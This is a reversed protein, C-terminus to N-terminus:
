KSLLSRRSKTTMLLIILSQTTSSIASPNLFYEFKRSICVGRWTTRSDIEQARMRICGYALSRSCPYFINICTIPISIMMSFPFSFNDWSESRTFLSSFFTTNSLRCFNLLTGEGSGMTKFYSSPPYLFWSPIFISSGM